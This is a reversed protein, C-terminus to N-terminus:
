VRIRMIRLVARVTEHRTGDNPVDRMGLSRSIREIRELESGRRLRRLDSRSTQGRRLLRQRRIEERVVLHFCYDPKPFPLEAVNISALSVGWAAHQALTTAVYRDTVVWHKQLLRRIRDGEHTLMALYYFLSAEKSAHKRVYPKFQEFGTRKPSFMRFYVAPISKARLTQAVLRSVTSKGSGDIGEFVILKNRM